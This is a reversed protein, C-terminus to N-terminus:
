ECFFLSFAPRGKAKPGARDKEEKRRLGALGARGLRSGKGLPGVARPHRASRQEKEEGSGRWRAREAGRSGKAEGSRREGRGAERETEPGEHADRSRRARATGGWRGLWVAM